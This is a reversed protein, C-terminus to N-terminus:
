QLAQIQIMSGNDSVTIFCLFKHGSTTTFAGVTKTFGSTTIAGASAGNTIEVVISGKNTGPALTHAGNNNYKQIPRDGTDLTTTGSSVTGLDKVTVRVGGTLAQDEVDLAAMGSPNILARGTARLYAAIYVNDSADQVVLAIDGVATTINAGGPLVLTTANHTLTLIGDFILWALRGDKAVAFDIDTITTTGTIHFWGGEGISITGASAINSGKEWLAALADPTVAVTTSTGTLAETTTAAVLGSQFKSITLATVGITGGKNSTCVWLTDANATGEMVSFYVGPLEDYADYATPRSPSVGVTYVGNEAPAAQATALVLDGNSLVVGDITDGSNLATAITIPSTAVARVIQLSAFGSGSAGTAGQDPVPHFFVRVTDNNAIAGSSSIPTITYTDYAGVDTKASTIWFALYAGTSKQIIVLCKNSNTSTAIATLFTALANADGDTESIHFATASAFTANNFLLKGSGPDGSTATNFQYKFGGDTGNTGPAGQPGQQPLVSGMFFTDTATGSVTGTSATTNIKAQVTYVDTGNADDIVTVTATATGVTGITGSEKLISGNKYIALQQIATADLTGTFVASAQLVVKGAPPTWANSAFLGGVDFVETGFTVATFTNDVLGTQATGNKHASFAATGTTPAFIPVEVGNRWLSVEHTLEDVILTNNPLEDFVFTDNADVVLGANDELFENFRGLNQALTASNAIPLGDVVIYPQSTLTTGNFAKILPLSTDSYNNRPDTEAVVGVFVPAAAAPFAIVISGARDRNSWQTGIGTVSTAGNAVTITGTSYAFREAM